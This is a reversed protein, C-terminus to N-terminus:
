FTTWQMANCESAGHTRKIHTPAHLDEGAAAEIPIVAFECPEITPGHQQIGAREATTVAIHGISTRGGGLRRLQRREEPGKNLESRELCGTRLGAGGDLM